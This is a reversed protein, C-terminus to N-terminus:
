LHMFPLPSCKETYRNKKIEGNVSELLDCASGNSEPAIVCTELYQEAIKDLKLVFSGMTTSFNRLKLELSMFM